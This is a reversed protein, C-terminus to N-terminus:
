EVSPYEVQLVILFSAVTVISWKESKCSLPLGILVLGTHKSPNIQITFICIPSSIDFLFMRHRRTKTEKATASNVM